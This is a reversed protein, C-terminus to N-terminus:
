AFERSRQYSIDYDAPNPQLAGFQQVCFRKWAAELSDACIIWSTPNGAKALHARVTPEIVQVKYYKILM